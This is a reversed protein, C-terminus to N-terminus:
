TPELKCLSVFSSAVTARTSETINQFGIRRLGCEWALFDNDTTHLASNVESTTNRTEAKMYALLVLTRTAVELSYDVESATNGEMNLHQITVSVVPWEFAEVAPELVPALSVGVEGGVM